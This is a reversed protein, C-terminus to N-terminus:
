KGEVKKSENTVRGSIDKEMESISHTIDLTMAGTSSFQSFISTDSMHPLRALYGLSGEILNRLCVLLQYGPLTFSVRCLPIVVYPRKGRKRYANFKNWSIFSMTICMCRSSFM